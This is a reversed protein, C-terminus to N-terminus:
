DNSVFDSDSKLDAAKKVLRFRVQQGCVTCSPFSDGVALTAEHAERHDRHTVQFVGSCPVADGPRFVHDSM